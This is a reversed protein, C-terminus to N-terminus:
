YSGNFLPVSSIHGIQQAPRETCDSDWTQPRHPSPFSRGKKIGRFAKLRVAFRSINVPGAKAEHLLILRIFSNATWAAVQTRAKQLGRAVSKFFATDDDLLARTCLDAVRKRLDNFVADYGESTTGDTVKLAKALGRVARAQMALQEAADGPGGEGYILLEM